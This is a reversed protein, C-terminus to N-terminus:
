EEPIITRCHGPMPMGDKIRQSACVSCLQEQWAVSGALCRFPRHCDQCEVTVIQRAEM